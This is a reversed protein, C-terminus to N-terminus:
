HNEGMHSFKEFTMVEIIFILLKWFIFIYFPILPWFSVELQRITYCVKFNCFISIFTPISSYNAPKNSQKTKKSSKFSQLTIRKSLFQILFKLYFEGM